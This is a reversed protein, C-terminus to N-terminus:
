LAGAISKKLQVHEEMLESLVENKLQLKSELQAIRREQRGGDRNRDSAFAAAGKEFFEQQWRYFLRPQLNLEDCLDSVPVEDVLHRKLIAVKEKPTFHRRTRKGAQSM